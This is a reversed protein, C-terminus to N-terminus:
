APEDDLAAVPQGLRDLAAIAQEFTRLPECVLGTRRAHELLKGKAFLRDARPAVCFDSAGDGIYLVRDADAHARALACKCNGSASTCAREAYPFALRWHREGVQEFRNARVPLHALGHRQLVGAIALDLGDSVIALPIGRSEAEAAFRAFFPDIEIADLVRELEARSMDLLAVQGALCDRSGIEGRLWRAELTQWGPRGHTDLLRDTVDVTSVTGDFDCLISWSM